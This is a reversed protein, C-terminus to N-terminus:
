LPGSVPLFKNWTVSCPWASIGMDQELSAVGEMVQSSQSRQSSGEGMGEGGGATSLKRRKAQHKHVPTELVMFPALTKPCLTLLNM